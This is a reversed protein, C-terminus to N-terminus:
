EGVDIVPEALSAMRRANVVEGFELENLKMDEPRAHRGFVRLVRMKHPNMFPQQDGPDDPIM